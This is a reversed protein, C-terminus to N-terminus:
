AAPSPTRTQATSSALVWRCLRTCCQWPPLPAEDAFPLPGVPCAHGPLPRIACPYQLAMANAFTANYPASTCNYAIRGYGPQVEVVDIEPASRGQYPHMGYGPDKDCATIRMADCQSAECSASGKEVCEDFNFPWTGASSPNLVARGLNGMMWFAPWLGFVSGNGPLQASYELAGQSFCFKNWSQLMASQLVETMTQNDVAFTAHESTAPIDLYGDRTRPYSSNYYNIQGNNYPNTELATWRADDGDAFSRGALDFEDSFVLEYDVGEINITCASQPTDFDAWEAGCGASESFKVLLVLAVVLVIPGRSAAACGM